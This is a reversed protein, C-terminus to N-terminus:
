EKLILPNSKIFNEIRNIIFFGLIFCIISWLGWSVRQGLDMVSIDGWFRTLFINNSDIRLRNSVVYVVEHENRKLATFIADLSKNSPDDLRFRVFTDLEDNEHLDTGGICTLNNNLCFKTLEPNQISGGNVIEFGDVGWDRYQTWTYPDERPYHNVTVYGGNAKVYTIMESVNMFLGFGFGEKDIRLGPIYEYPNIKEEIGYINL